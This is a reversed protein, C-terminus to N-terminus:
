FLNGQIKKHLRIAYGDSIRSVFSCVSLIREYVNSSSNKYEKPLLNSVLKDYSTAKGLFTNNQAHIFVHLLDALIKYGAVEKEIVENSRYIKQVSIKIIDKMQAEYACKDLLSYSFEGNLITEENALFVGVAENILTNIAM